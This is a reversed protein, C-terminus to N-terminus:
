VGDSGILLFKEVIVHLNRHLSIVVAELEIYRLAFVMYQFREALIVAYINRIGRYSFSNCPVVPNALEDSSYPFESFSPSWSYGAILEM